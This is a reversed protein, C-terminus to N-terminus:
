PYSARRYGSSFWHRRKKRPSLPDPTRKSSQQLSCGPHVPPSTCSFGKSEAVLRDRALDLREEHCASTTLKKYCLSNGSNLSVGQELTKISNQPLDFIDYKFQKHVKLISEESIRGLQLSCRFFQPVNKM